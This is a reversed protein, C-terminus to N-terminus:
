VESRGLSNPGETDEKLLPFVASTHSKILKGLHCLKYTFHKYSELVGAKVSGGGFYCCIM